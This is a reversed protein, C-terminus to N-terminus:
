IFERKNDPQYITHAGTDKSDLFLRVKRSVNSVAKHVPVINDYENLEINKLLLSYNM